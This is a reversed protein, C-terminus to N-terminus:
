KAIWGGEFTADNVLAPNDELETIWGLICAYIMLELNKSHCPTMLGTSGVMREWICNVSIKRALSPM